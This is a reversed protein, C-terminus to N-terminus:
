KYSLKPYRPFLPTWSFGSRSSSWFIPLTNDPTNHHFSILLQCDGFGLEAGNQLIMGYKACMERVSDSALPDSHNRFYRSDPAFCKFTQDLEIVSEVRDFVGSSRVTNIGSECAFLTYHDIKSRPHNYKLHQTIAVAKLATEGSGLFDDIFVFHLPDKSEDDKLTLLEHAQVFLEKPLGNMQRFYYLIHCGSESPNGLGLFRTSILHRYFESKLLKLDTTDQQSKRIGALVPYQYLDRFMARILQRIQKSGFYMYHSLLFLAHSQEITADGTLGIFNNLWADIDQKNLRHEWVCRNLIEIKDLLTTTM